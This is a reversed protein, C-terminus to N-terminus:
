AKVHQQVQAPRQQQQHHHPCAPLCSCCTRCMAPSPSRAVATSPLPSPCKDSTVRPDDLWTPYLQSGCQLSLVCTHLCRLLCSDLGSHHKSLNVRHPAAITSVPTSGIHWARCGEVTGRPGLLQVKCWLAACRHMCCAAFGRFMLTYHVRLQAM